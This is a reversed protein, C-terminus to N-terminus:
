GAQSQGQATCTVNAGQLVNVALLAVNLGCVNAAVSVPLQLTVNGVNVNVLGTQNVPGGSSPTVTATSTANSVAKCTAQGLQAVDVALAAVNVGCINAAVAIPVQVTVDGLNINVLGTQNVPGQAGATSAGAGLALTLAAFTCAVIRRM